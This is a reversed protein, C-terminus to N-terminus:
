HVAANAFGAESKSFRFTITEEGLPLILRLEDTTVEIPTWSEGFRMDPDRGCDSRNNPNLWMVKQYLIQRGSDANTEIAYIAKRECFGEEDERWYKLWAVQGVEEFKMEIHLKPNLPAM